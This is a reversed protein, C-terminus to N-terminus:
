KTISELEEILNIRDCEALKGDKLLEITQKLWLYYDQKYLSSHM